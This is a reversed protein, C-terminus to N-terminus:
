DTRLQLEIAVERGAAVDCVAHGAGLGDAHGALQYRGPRPATLMFRGEADTLAAVDPVPGPAQAFSVRAGAAPRGLADRVSGRILM